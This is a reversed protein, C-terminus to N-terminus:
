LYLLAFCIDSDSSVMFVVKIKNALLTMALQQLECRSIDKFVVRLVKFREYYRM